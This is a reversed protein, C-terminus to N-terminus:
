EEKTIQSKSRHWCIFGYTNSAMFVALSFIMPLVSLGNAEGMFVPMLWILIQLINAMLFIIFMIGNNRLLLYNAVLLCLSLPLALYIYPTVLFDLLFYLGVGLVAVVSLIILWEKWGISKPQVFTTKGRRFIWMCITAIIVPLGVAGYMIVEGWYNSIASQAIYMASYAAGFILAFNYKKAWLIVYIVGFISYIIILPSSDVFIASVIIGALGLVFLIIDFVNFSKFFEKVKIM